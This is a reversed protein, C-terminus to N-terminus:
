HAAVVWILVWRTCGTPQWPHGYKQGLGEDWDKQFKGSYLRSSSDFWAGIKLSWFNSLRICWVTQIGYWEKLNSALYPLLLWPEQWKAWFRPLMSSIDSSFYKFYSKLRYNVLLKSHSHWLWWSSSMRKEVRLLYMGWFVEWQLVAEARETLFVELGCKLRSILSNATM